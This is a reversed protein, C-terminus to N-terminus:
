KMSLYRGLFGAIKGVANTTDAGKRYTFGHAANPYEYCETTVGAANLLQQYKLGEDHLSDRGALILLAPPLGKLEGHNAYVQSVFRDAAHAVDVYCANFMSAM